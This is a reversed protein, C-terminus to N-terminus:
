LEFRNGMTVTADQALFQSKVDILVTGEAAGAQDRRIARVDLRRDRRWNFKEGEQRLAEAIADAGRVLTPEERTVATDRTQTM